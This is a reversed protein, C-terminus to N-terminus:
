SYSNADRTAASPSFQVKFVASCYNVCEVQWVTPFSM